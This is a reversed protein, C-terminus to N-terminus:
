FSFALVAGYRGDLPNLLPMIEVRMSEDSTTSNRKQYDDWKQYYENYKRHRVATAIEFTIYGLGGVTMISLPTILGITELTTMKSGSVGNGMAYGLFFMSAVSGGLFTWFMVDKVFDDTRYKELNYEYLKQYYAASDVPAVPEQALCPAIILAICLLIIKMHLLIFFLGERARSNNLLLHRFLDPMVITM